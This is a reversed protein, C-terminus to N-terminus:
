CARGTIQILSRTSRFFSENDADLVMILSVEPLDIGERLLNIGVVCDYIGKRLKRLIENREFTKHESHIYAIKENKEM